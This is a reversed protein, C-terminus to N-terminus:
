RWCNNNHCSRYSAISTINLLAHSTRPGRFPPSFLGSGSFFHNWEYPTKNGDKAYPPFFFVSCSKTLKLFRSRVKTFKHCRRGHGLVM